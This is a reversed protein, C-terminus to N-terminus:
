VRFSDMQANPRTLIKNVNQSYLEGKMPAGNDEKKNNNNNYELHPWWKTWDWKVTPAEQLAMILIPEQMAVEQAVQDEQNNGVSDKWKQPGPCHIISVNVPKM